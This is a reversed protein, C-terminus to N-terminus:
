GLYGYVHTSSLHLYTVSHVSPISLYGKCSQIKDLAQRNSIQCCECVCNTNSVAGRIMSEGFLFQNTTSEGLGHRCCIMDNKNESYNFTFCMKHQLSGEIVGNSILNNKGKSFIASPM